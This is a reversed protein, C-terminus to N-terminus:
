ESVSYNIDVKDPWFILSLGIKGKTLLINSDYFVELNFPMSLENNEFKQLLNLVSKKDLIPINESIELFTSEGPALAFASSNTSCKINNVIVVEPKTPSLEATSVVIPTLVINQATSNGKNSIEFRFKVEIGGAIEKVFIFKNDNFKTPEVSLYPRQGSVLAQHAIDNSKNAIDISKNSQILAYVSVGFVFFWAIIKIFNLLTLVEGLKKTLWSNM